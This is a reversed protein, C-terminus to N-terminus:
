LRTPPASALSLSQFLFCLLCQSRQQREEKGDSKSVGKALAEQVKQIGSRGRQTAPLMWCSILYGTSCDSKIYFFGKIGKRRRISHLRRSAKKKESSFFFM